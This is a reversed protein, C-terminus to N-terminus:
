ARSRAAAVPTHVAHLGEGGGAGVDVFRDRSGYQARAPASSRGSRRPPRASRPPMSTLEGVVDAPRRELGRHVRMRHRRGVPRRRFFVVRREGAQLDHLHQQGTAGIDVRWQACRERRVLSSRPPSPTSPAPVVGSSRAAFAPSAGTMLSSSSLPAFGFAACSVADVRDHHGGIDGARLPCSRDRCFALLIRDLRDRREEGAPVSMLAVSSLSSAGGCVAGREPTQMSRTLNRCALPAFSRTWSLRPVSRAPDDSLPESAAEAEAPAGPHIWRRCPSLSPPSSPPMLPISIGAAGPPPRGSRLGSSGCSPFRFQM